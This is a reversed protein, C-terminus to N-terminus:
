IALAGVAWWGLPRLRDSNFCPHVRISVSLEPQNKECRHADTDMQPEISKKMWLNMSTTEPAEDYNLTMPFGPSNRMGNM